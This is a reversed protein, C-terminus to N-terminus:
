NYDTLITQLLYILLFFSLYYLSATILLPIIREHKESIDISTTIKRYYFFPIFAIPLGFTGSATVILILKKAEPLLLSIHTGSNLILYIGITPMLLPHLIISLFQPFRKYFLNHWLCGKPLVLAKNM